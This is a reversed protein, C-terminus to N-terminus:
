LIEKGKMEVDRLLQLAIYKYPTLWYKNLTKGSIPVISLMQYTIENLKLMSPTM